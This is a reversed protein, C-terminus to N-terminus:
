LLIVRPWSHAKTQQRATVDDSTATETQNMAKMTSRRRCARFLCYRLLM